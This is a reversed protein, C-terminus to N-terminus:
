SGEGDNKFEYQFESVERKRELIIRGSCQYKQLFCKGQFVHITEATWEKLFFGRGPFSSAKYEM